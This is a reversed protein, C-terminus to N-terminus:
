KLAFHCFCHVDHTPKTTKVGEYTKQTTNTTQHCSGTKFLSKMLDLAFICNHVHHTSLCNTLQCNTLYSVLPLSTEQQSLGFVFTLSFSLESASFTKIMSESNVGGNFVTLSFTFSVVNSSFSNSSSLLLKLFTMLSSSVLIAQFAYSSTSTTTSDVILIGFRVGIFYIVIFRIVIPIKEISKEMNLM